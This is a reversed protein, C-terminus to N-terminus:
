LKEIKFVHNLSGSTINLFYLGNPFKSINLQEEISGDKVNIEQNVVIQGQANTLTIKHKENSLANASITLQDHAPNPYAVLSVKHDSYFLGVTTIQNCSSTDICIGNKIVVAYNGSQTPMFSQDNAGNIPHQTACDIWQYTGGTANARLVGNDLSVTNNISGSITSLTRVPGSGCDNNAKVSILGGNRNTTATMLTTNSSGTWGNPLTWSFSTAGSVPSISYHEQTESQCLVSKGAILGARSPTEKVTTQLSQVPTTGCSNKAKVTIQGGSTGATVNITRSTSSGSWGSPLTWVYSTANSVAPVSYTHTSNKCVELSGTIAAIVGPQPCSITHTVKVKFTPSSPPSSSYNWTYIRVYYTTGVTLGSFTKVVSSPTGSPDYCGLSTNMACATRLEIVGDFNSSYNSLTVTHSTAQAVFKYYVDKDDQSTCDCGSCQNPGYSGTACKVTGSLVAGNSTLLTASSCNDNTPPSCPSFTADLCNVIGLGGAANLASQGRSNIQATTLHTGNGSGTGPFIVYDIIQQTTGGNKPSPNLGLNAALKMSGEGLKNAPGSDTYYAFSSNGNNINKAYALDGITIGALNRLALPIAIYPITESNVYRSPHQNSFGSQVLSTTSVYYGPYPHGAGQIVPTGNSNGNTTAIGWWNGPSGANALWDLGTDNPHYARPCGDADIAMKARFLIAGSPIHKYVKYNQITTIHTFNCTVQGNLSPLILLTFVILFISKIYM